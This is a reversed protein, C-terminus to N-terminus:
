INPENALQYVGFTGAVGIALLIWENATIPKEVSGVVLQSWGIVTTVFAAISKKYGKLFTFIDKMIEGKLYGTIEM